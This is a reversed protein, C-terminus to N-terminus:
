CFVCVHIRAFAYSPFSGYEPLNAPCCHRFFVLRDDHLHIYDFTHRRRHAILIMRSLLPISLKM